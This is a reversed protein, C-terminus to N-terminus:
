QHSNTMNYLLQCTDTSKMKKNMSKLKQTVLTHFELEHKCHINETIYSTNKRDM